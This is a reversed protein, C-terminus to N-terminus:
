SFVILLLCPNFSHIFSSIVHSLWHNSGESKGKNYGVRLVAMGEKNGMNSAGMGMKIGTTMGIETAQEEGHTEMEMTMVMGRAPNLNRSPKYPSPNPRFLMDHIVDHIVHYMLVM